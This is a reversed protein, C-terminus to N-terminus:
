LILIHFTKMKICLELRGVIGHSTSQLNIGRAIVFRSMMQRQVNQCIYWLVLDVNGCNPIAIRTRNRRRTVTIGAKSYTEGISLADGDVFASCGDLRAEIKHCVGNQDVANVGIGGIINGALPNSLSTYFANVSTCKDSVLNFYSSAKGHVEYCLSIGTLNPNQNILEESIQIPVTYLPDGIVTDNAQMGLLIYLLCSTSHSIKCKSVANKALKM